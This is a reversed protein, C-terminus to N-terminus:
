GFVFGRQRGQQSRFELREFIHWYQAHSTYTLGICFPLAVLRPALPLEIIIRAHLYRAHLAL